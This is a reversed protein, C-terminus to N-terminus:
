LSVGEEYPFRGRMGACPSAAMPSGLQWRRWCNPLTTFGDYRVCLASISTSTCTDLLQKFIPMCDALSRLLAEEGGGQALIERVQTDIKVALQTQHPTLPM